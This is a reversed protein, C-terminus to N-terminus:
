VHVFETSIQKQYKLMKTSFLRSITTTILYVPSLYLGEGWGRLSAPSTQDGGTDPIDPSDNSEVKNDGRKNKRRTRNSM